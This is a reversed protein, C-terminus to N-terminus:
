YISFLSEPISPDSAVWRMSRDMKLKFEVYDEHHHWTCWGDDGGGTKLGFQSIRGRNAKVHLLDSFRLAHGM